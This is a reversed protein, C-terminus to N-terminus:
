PNVRLILGVDPVARDPAFGATLWANVCGDDYGLRASAGAFAERGVDWTVGAGVRLRGPAVTADSWALWLDDGTYEGEGPVQDADLRTTGVAAAVWRSGM